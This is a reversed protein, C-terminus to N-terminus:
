QTQPAPALAPIAYEVIETRMLTLFNDDSVMTLRIRGQADRWVSLGELNAHTMPTTELHLREDEPRDATLDWSRVRSRFGIVSAERELLYFRGDPGFDAGVPLFWGARPLDLIRQWHGNQWRYLPFPADAAPANEPVTVLRGMPDAALAELTSNRHLDRFAPHKRHFRPEAGFSAYCATRSTQEFSICLSGDPWVVLGEADLHWIEQPHRPKSSMARRATLDIGAIQDGERRLMGLVLTGRDTIAMFQQGDEVFDFGSFGGFWDAQDGSQEAQWRFAQLFGAKHAPDATLAMPWLGLILAVASGFRM